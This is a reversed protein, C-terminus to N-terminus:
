EMGLVDRIHPVTYTRFIETITGIGFLETREEFTYNICLEVAYGAIKVTYEELDIM